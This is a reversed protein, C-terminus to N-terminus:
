WPRPTSPWPPPRCPNWLGVKAVAMRVMDKAKETAAQPEAAHVWSGQNRINAMEFLYENLGSAKLTEQFLAEHTRPTCAAVVIRNLGHSHIKAKIIDQTDQACTFLNREVYVVQPLKAAYDALAAVDIVGAINSGCHCIFVGVRPEEGRVDREPPFEQHRTLSNRVEALPAAAAAAAASAEMVAQPIDKPGTFTGCAYVGPKSTAIPSFTSTEAFLNANLGVGLRSALEVVQPPTEMGVSLVVLDYSTEVQMGSDTIYRFYIDGPEAAPELSHVRCCHFKIGMEQARQFYHEYEKGHTRVDMYFISAELGKVHDMAMMAEKISFMCCASSCYGHSCKNYDRSGVCQLFAVKKVEKGDSPRTLHGGTPGSASLYREMELATIVNPFVKYGWTRIGAPNFAQFGPSLIISGVEVTLEKATDKFNIAGAPCIKECASCKGKILKICHQPDIQYKLPVAQPYQVYIAKRVNLEENYADKVKKPCKAACEGCAICKDMDVYRPHRRLNVTFHGPEGGVQEVETLTLLEINL